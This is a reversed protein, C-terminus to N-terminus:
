FEVEKVQIDLTFKIIFIFYAILPIYTLGIYKLMSPEIHYLMGVGIIISFLVEFILVKAANKLSTIASYSNSKLQLVKVIWFIISVVSISSTVNDIEYPIFLGLTSLFYITDIIIDAIFMVWTIQVLDNLNYHKFYNHMFYLSYCSAVILAITFLQNQILSFGTIHPFFDTLTVRIISLLLIISSGLM